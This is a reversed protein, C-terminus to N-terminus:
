FIWWKCEVIVELPRLPPPTHARKVTNRGSSYIYTYKGRIKDNGFPFREARHIEFAFNQKVKSM